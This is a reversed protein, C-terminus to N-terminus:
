LRQKSKPRSALYLAVDNTLAISFTVWPYYLMTLHYWERLLNTKHSFHFIEIKTCVSMVKRVFQPTVNASREINVHVIAPMAKLIRFIIGCNLNSTDSIEIYRLNTFQSIVHAFLKSNFKNRNDLTAPLITCINRLTLSRIRKCLEDYIRFNIDLLPSSDVTVRELQFCLNMIDSLQPNFPYTTDISNLERVSIAKINENYQEIHELLSDFNVTDGAIELNRWVHKQQAATKFNQHIGCLTTITKFDIMSLLKALVETPMNVLHGLNVILKQKCEPKRMLFFWLLNTKKNLM